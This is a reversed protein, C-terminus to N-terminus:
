LPYCQLDDNNAVRIEAGTYDSIGILAILLLGSQIVTRLRVDGVEDPFWALPLQVNMKTGIYQISTTFYHKSRDTTARVILRQNYNLHPMKETDMDENDISDRTM